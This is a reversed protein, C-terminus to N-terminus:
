IPFQKFCLAPRSATSFVFNDQVHWSVFNLKENMWYMAWCAYQAVVTEVGINMRPIFIIGTM